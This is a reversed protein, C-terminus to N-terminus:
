RLPPGVISCGYANAIAELEGAEAKALELFCREIGGPAFTGLMRIDTESLNAWAHPVGRPVTFATGAPADFTRDGCVFRVTGELVVFHEDENHHIHLPPGSGPVAVVELISYRGDTEASAVRVAVLEGPQPQLWDGGTEEGNRELQPPKTHPSEIRDIPRSM